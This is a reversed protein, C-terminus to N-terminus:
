GKKNPQIMNTINNLSGLDFGELMSKAQNVMPAMTEITKFLEQQQNMLKKTDDSLQSLSKGDLMTELNDYAAELTSAYDIRNNKKKSDDKHISVLATNDMGGMMMTETTTNETDPTTTTSSTLPTTIDDNSAIQNQIETKKQQIANAVNNAVDQQSTTSTDSTTPTSSTDTTSTSNEMGEQNSKLLILNALIVSVILIVSVNNTIRSMIIAILIFFVIANWNKLFLFGLITTVSLILIIYYVVNNDFFKNLKTAWKKNVM